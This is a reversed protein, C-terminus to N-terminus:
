LKSILEPMNKKKEENKDKKAIFYATPTAACAGAAAIFNAAVGTASVSQVFAFVSPLCHTSQWLAAWSGLTITPGAFGALSLLTPVAGLGLLVAGSNYIAAKKGFSRWLSHQQNNNDTLENNSSVTTSESDHKMTEM